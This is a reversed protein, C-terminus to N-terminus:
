SLNVHNLRRSLQSVEPSYIKTTYLKLKYSLKGGPSYTAAAKSCYFVVYQIVSYLFNDIAVKCIPIDEDDKAEHSGSCLFVAPQILISIINLVLDLYIKEELQMM